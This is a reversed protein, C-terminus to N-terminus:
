RPKCVIERVRLDLFANQSAPSVVCAADAGEGTGAIFLADAGPPVAGADAAMVACEVCVKVGQGFLRLTEAAIELPSIGKFKVRFSREPGSLAHTGTVLAFGLGRLRERMEGGMEDVGPGAFGVHHTVCVLRGSFGLRRAEEHLLLATQGSASAVVAHSLSLELARKLGAHLVTETNDKGPKDFYHGITTSM